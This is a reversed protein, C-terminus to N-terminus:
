TWAFRRGFTALVIFLHRLVFRKKAVEIPFELITEELQPYFSYAALDDHRAGRAFAGLMQRLKQALRATARQLSVDQETPHPFFLPRLSILRVHQVEATQPKQEEAYIPIRVNM